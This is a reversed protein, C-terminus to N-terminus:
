TPNSPPTTMRCLPYNTHWRKDEVSYLHGCAPPPHLNSRNSGSYTSLFGFGSILQLRCKNHFQDPPIQLLNQVFLVGHGRAM